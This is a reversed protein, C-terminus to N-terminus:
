KSHQSEATVSIKIKNTKDILSDFKSTRDTALTIKPMIYIGKKIDYKMERRIISFPIVHINKTKIIAKTPSITANYTPLYKPLCLNAGKTLGPLVTSPKTPNTKPLVIAM